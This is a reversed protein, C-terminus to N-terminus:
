IKNSLINSICISPLNNLIKDLEREYITKYNLSDLYNNLNKIADPNFNLVEVEQRYGLSANNIIINIRQLLDEKNKLNYNLAFYTSIKILIDVKQRTLYNINFSSQIIIKYYIYRDPPRHMNTFIEIISNYIEKITNDIIVYKEIDDDNTILIYYKLLDSKLINITDIYENDFDKININELNCHDHYYKRSEKLADNFDNFSYLKLDFNVNYKKNNISYINM